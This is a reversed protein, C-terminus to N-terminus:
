EKEEQLKILVNRLAILGASNNISIQYKSEKELIDLMKSTFEKQAVKRESEVLKTADAQGDCNGCRTWHYTREKM